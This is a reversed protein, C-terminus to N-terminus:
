RSRRRSRAIATRSAFITRFSLNILCNDRLWLRHLDQMLEEKVFCLITHLYMKRRRGSQLSRVVCVVDIIMLMSVIFLLPIMSIISIVKLKFLGPAAGPGSVTAAYYLDKWLARVSQGPILQEPPAPVYQRLNSETVTATNGYDLYTVAYNGNDISDIRATYWKGDEEWLAVCRDGVKWGKDEEGPLAPVGSCVLVTLSQALISKLAGQMKTLDETLAVVQRLDAQLKLLTEDSPNVKLLNDVQALQDQHERLKRALEDVTSSMEFRVM